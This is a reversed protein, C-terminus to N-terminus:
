ISIAKYLKTYTEQQADLCEKFVITGVKLLKNNHYLDCTIGKRSRIMEIIYGRSECYNTMEIFDPLSETSQQM